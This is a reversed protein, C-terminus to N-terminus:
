SNIKILNGFQDKDCEVQHENLAKPLCNYDISSFSAMDEVIKSFKALNLTVVNQYVLLNKNCNIMIIILTGAMFRRIFNARIELANKEPQVMEFM